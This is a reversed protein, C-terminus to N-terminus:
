HAVGAASHEDITHGHNFRDICFPKALKNPRDNAILDAYVHGSGPTAKFGGTGWGANIYMGSIPTKSLVPCADPCVDVIGAWQRNMRVRSFIPFLEIIARANHEIIHPSGRQGYGSYSDIGAGVVLDGKNTQSIYGHVANSMVVCDLIPKLPESVFAQLPHSVIPLSVGAKSAIVSTHGATALALKDTKIFGLNTNVGVIIKNKHKIDLVECNEIIDVGLKSAAHAFGWAVADHRAVGARRQCAAGLIPYRSKPSINIYPIRKALEEPGMLESDIGNVLNANNRRELGRLDQLSHALSYVGRQSFMLNYGLDQSLGEWLKLSHEYIASSEDWLYNSRIITTNRATNGLGIASKELVAIKGVKHNKALYYATALGHGGGGVIIVDYQSCLDSNQWTNSWSKNNRLGHKLIQWVNYSM